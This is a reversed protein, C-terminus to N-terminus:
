AKLSPYFQKEEACIKAAFEQNKLTDVHVVDMKFVIPLADIEFCLRAFDQASLSPAHVAIDIDSYNKYTGKARSGFIAASLVAPFRRLVDSLDDIIFPALGFEM